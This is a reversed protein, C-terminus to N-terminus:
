GNVCTGSNIDPYYTHNYKVPMDDRNPINDEYTTWYYGHQKEHELPCNGVDPFYKSCCEEGSRYLYHKEYGNIGMWAPYDRGHGCNKVGFDPYYYNEM